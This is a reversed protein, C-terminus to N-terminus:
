LWIKHQVPDRATTRESQCLSRLRISQPSISSAQHYLVGDNKMVICPTVGSSGRVEQAEPLPLNKFMWRSRGIHCWSIVIGEGFHFFRQSPGLVVCSIFKDTSYPLWYPVNVITSASIIYSAKWVNPLLHYRPDLSFTCLHQVGTFLAMDSFIRVIAM